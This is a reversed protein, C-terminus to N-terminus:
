YENYAWDLMIKNVTNNFFNHTTQEDSHFKVVIQVACNFTTKESEPDGAITIGGSAYKIGGISSTNWNTVHTRGSSLEVYGRVSFEDAFEEKIEIYIDLVIAEKRSINEIPDDLRYTYSVTIDDWYGDFHEAPNLSRDLPDIPTPRWTIQYSRFNLCHTAPDEPDKDNCELGSFLFFAVICALGALTPLISKKM